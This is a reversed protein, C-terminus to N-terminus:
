NNKHFLVYSEGIGDKAEFLIIGTELSDFNHCRRKEIQVARIAGTSDLEVSEKLLGNADHFNQRMEGRIIIVTTSTNPHKHIPM